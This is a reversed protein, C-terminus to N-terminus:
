EGKLEKLPTVPSEKMLAQAYVHSIFMGERDVGVTVGGILYWGLNLLSTVERSLDGATEASLVKYEFYMPSPLLEEVKPKQSVRDAM